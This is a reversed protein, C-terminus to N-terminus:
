PELYFRLAVTERNLDVLREDYLNPPRGALDDRAPGGEAVRIAATLVMARRFWFYLANIIACYAIM